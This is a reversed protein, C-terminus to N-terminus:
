IDLLMKALIMCKLDNDLTLYPWRDEGDEESYEDADHEPVPNAVQKMEELIDDDNTTTYKIEFKDDSIFSIDFNRIYKHPCYRFHSRYWEMVDEKYTEVNKQVGYFDISVKIIFLINVM